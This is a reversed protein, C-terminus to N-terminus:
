GQVVKLEGALVYNAYICDIPSTALNHKSRAAAIPTMQVRALAGDDFLISEARGEFDRGTELEPSWPMYTACIAHRVASFAQSSPCYQTDWVTIDAPASSHTRAAADELDM